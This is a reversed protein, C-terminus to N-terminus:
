DITIDFTIRNRYILIQQACVIIRISNGKAKEFNLDNKRKHLLSIMIDYKM